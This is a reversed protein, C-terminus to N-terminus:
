FQLLAVIATDGMGSDHTEILQKVLPEVVDDLRSDPWSGEPVVFRKGTQVNAWRQAASENPRGTLDVDLTDIGAGCAKRSSRRHLQQPVALFSTSVVTLRITPGLQLSEKGKGL